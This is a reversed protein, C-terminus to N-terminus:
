REWIEPQGFAVDRHFQDLSVAVGWVMGLAELSVGGHCGLGVDGVRGGGDSWGRFVAQVVDEVGEGVGGQGM